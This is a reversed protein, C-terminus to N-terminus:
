FNFILFLYTTITYILYFIGSNNVENSLTTADTLIKFAPKLNKAHLCLRCLEAHLMTIQEPNEQLKCIAQYLAHIGLRSEGCEVLM